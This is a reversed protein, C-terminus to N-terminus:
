LSAFYDSTSKWAGPDKDYFWLMSRCERLDKNDGKAGALLHRKALDYGKTWVNSPAVLLHPRGRGALFGDLKAATAANFIIWKTLQYITSNGSERVGSVPSAIEFIVQIDFPQALLWICLVDLTREGSCVEGLESDWAFIRHLDCDVAIVRPKM